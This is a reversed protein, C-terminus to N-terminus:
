KKGFFRITFGGAIRKPREHTSSDATRKSVKTLLASIVLELARRIGPEPVQEIGDMLGDLEMLVHGDFEARDEDPYRRTAGEKKKRRREAHAVVEHARTVLLAAEKETVGRTKLAVLEASLPNVDSGLARRGLLRAEVLVTGSGAFPDLVTQGPRTLGEILRRATQPHM